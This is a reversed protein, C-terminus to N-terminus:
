KQGREHNVHNVVFINIFAAIGGKFRTMLKHPRKPSSPLTPSDEGFASGFTRGLLQDATERERGM